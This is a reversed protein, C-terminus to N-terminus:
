EILGEKKLLQKLAPDPATLYGTGKQRAEYMIEADRRGKDYGLWYARTIERMIFRRFFVSLM